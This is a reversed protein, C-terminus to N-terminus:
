LIQAYRARFQGPTIGNTKKFLRIFYCDDDFGSQASVESIAMDPFHQLLHEAHCLRYQNILATPTIQYATKVIRCLHGHSIRLAEAIEYPSIDESLHAEIYSQVQSLYGYSKETTYRSQLYHQWLIAHIQLICAHIELARTPSDGNFLAASHTLLGSLATDTDHLLLAPTGRFPLLYRIGSYSNYPTHIVTEAYGFVTCQYVGGDSSHSLHPPLVLIDGAKLLFSQEGATFSRSGETIYLIEFCDHWHDALRGADYNTSHQRSVSFEEQAKKGWDLPFTTQFPM